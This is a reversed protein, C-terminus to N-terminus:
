KVAVWMPSVWVIEGDKQEGRVYYYSTKGREPATDRWTFSVERAGPEVTHVFRNNRIVHVKAFEATGTLKVSFQPSGSVEFSDGMIHNGSRFEALIHDTAGYLHRKKLADLLGERSAETVLINCYSMHTSIHDSSAQFALKYGMELALSVFGKPRWGGISDTERNTRPAGPMEYNQREGQYIEVMPEADPDNDRWDTGMNTGSTHSAAVGNFKKLYAYLMQTDPARVVPEDATRALRPLPRIGRQAFVVNRHGEPYPVSREHSFMSIFRGPQFFIDTLKQEYNWSYERANGNDHDCCGVWDMASADLMYRYQDIVTGDNGGDASVESHRHFEGRLIRYQAGGARLRYTRMKAVAGQEARDEATLGAAVVPALPKVGGATVTGPLEIRNLYLDNHYPDQKALQPQPVFRRRGDASGMILLEGAKVSALAPRNDLLNDTHHLYVGGTWGVGDWSVLHETWVTGLASWFIPHMSRFAIWLRGGADVLLRPMTNRPGRNAQTARSAGRNRWAELNPKMWADADSQRDPIDISQAPAGPMVTGPDVATSVLGGAATLGRLRIARGQYLAVGSSEDAGWDKGWKEGGEEFAVWLTGQTDYAASPYAEYSASAAIPQEREWRGPATAARAFVDYSGHRYSDYVVAVRGSPGAAIAPNWENGASSSVTEPASFAGGNQVAALISAKGDRWGQWALWVRGQSDTAAVVGIDSGPATTVRVPSGGEAARAWVDYNGKDNASWIVWARGQGDVAVAPRYYDGGPASVAIPTGWAGNSYKRVFVTEGGTKETM